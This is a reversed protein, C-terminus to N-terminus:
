PERGQRGTKWAPSQTEPWNSSQKRRSRRVIAYFAVITTLVLAAIGIGNLAYLVPGLNLDTGLGSPNSSTITVNASASHGTSDTVSVRPHYTGPLTYNHAVSPGLGINGDGFDWSFSYPSIGGSTRATLHTEFPANGQVTPSSITITLPQLVNIRRTTSNVSGSNDTTILEAQYNGPTSYVHSTVNAANSYTGDGFLWLYSGIAGGIDTGGAPDPDYSLTGNFRLSDGAFAVRPSVTFNAIPWLDASNAIVTTTLVPSAVGWIDTVTLTTTYKNASQYVYSILPHTTTLTTGDGFDWAYSVITGNPDSSATANFSVPYGSV